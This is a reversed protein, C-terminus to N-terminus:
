VISLIPSSLASIIVPVCGYWTVVIVQATTGASLNALIWLSELQLQLYQTQKALQIIKPVLGSDITQQIPINKEIYLLKRLGILGYHKQLTNDSNIGQLIANWDLMTFNM